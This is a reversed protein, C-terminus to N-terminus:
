ISGIGVVDEAVTGRGFPSHKEKAADKAEGGTEKNGSKVSPNTIKKKHIQEERNM